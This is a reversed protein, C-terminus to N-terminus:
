IFKYSNYYHKNDFRCSDKVPTFNEVIQYNIILNAFDKSFRYLGQCALSVRGLRRSKRCLMEQLASSYM